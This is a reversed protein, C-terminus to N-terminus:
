PLIEQEKWSGSEKWVLLWRVEPYLSAAMKLNELGGRFAHPGKVEWATAKAPGDPTPWLAAFFDPKYWSSRSLRFRLSQIRIPPYNPSRDKIINLWETELKNMLPKASQRVRKGPAAIVTTAASSPHAGTRPKREHERLQEESWTVM